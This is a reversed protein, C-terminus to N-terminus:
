LYTVGALLLAVLSFLTLALRSRAVRMPGGIVIRRVGEVLGASKENSLSATRGKPLTFHVYWLTALSCLVLLGGTEQNPGSVVAATNVALLLLVLVSHKLWQSSLQNKKNNQNKM